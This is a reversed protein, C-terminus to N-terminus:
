IIRGQIYPPEVVHCLSMFDSLTQQLDNLHPFANPLLPEAWKDGYGERYLHIHPCPITTGDPNTHDAGNLDLRILVITRRARNQYTCKSLSIRSRNVDLLFDERGDKSTLPINVNDGAAPFVWIQGDVRYKDMAVLSDVEVQPINSQVM